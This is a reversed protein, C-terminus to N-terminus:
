CVKIIATIETGPPATGLEKHGRAMLLHVLLMLRVVVKWLAVVLVDVNVLRVEELVLHRQHRVDGRGGLQQLPAAGVQLAKIFRRM